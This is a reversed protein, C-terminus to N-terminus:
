RGMNMAQTLALRKSFPSLSREKRPSSVPVPVPVPVPRGRDGHDKNRFSNGYRNNENPRRRDGKGDVPRDMSLRASEPRQGHDPRRERAIRSQDMSNSRSRTRRKSRPARSCMERGRVDPSVSSRRPRTHRNDYLSRYRARDSDSSGSTYSMSSSRSRRRKRRSGASPDKTLNGQVAERATASPSDAVPRAGSDQNRVRPARTRGKEYSSDSSYSLSIRRSKNIDYYRLPKQSPSTEHGENEKPSPSRSMNTSITSVSTSSSTSASISRKRLQNPSDDLASLLERNQEVKALQEDAVGEEDKKLCKQCLTQATAKSPGSRFRNMSNM